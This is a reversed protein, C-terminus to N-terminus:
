KRNDYFSLEEILKEQKEIIEAMIAKEEDYKKNYVNYDNSDYAANKEKTVKALEAKLEKINM